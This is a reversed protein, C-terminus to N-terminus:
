RPLEIRYKAAMARVAKSRQEAMVTDTWDQQVVNRLSTFDAPKAPSSSEVRIARWANRDRVAYWKGSEQKMVADAFTQGYTGVISGLPRDRFLRLGAQQEPAEGRNLAQVFAQAAAESKDGALVAEAFTFRAPEDYRSRNKEFWDKLIKEDLKPLRTDADVMSLAKFIVRERITTDGKDMGLAVGERYLVENDIWVQRLARLEAADPARGRAATFATRAEEDVAAGVVIRYPDGRKEVLAADLLFLAAGLIAFHLLPERLWGPLRRRPPSSDTM